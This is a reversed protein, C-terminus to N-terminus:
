VAGPRRRFMGSFFWFLAVAQLLTTTGFAVSYGESAYSGNGAPYLNIVVGIGWQVLFSGVFVTLNLATNALGAM